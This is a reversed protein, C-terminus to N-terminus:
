DASTQAQTRIAKLTEELDDLRASSLLSKEQLKKWNYFAVPDGQRARIEEEAMRSALRRHEYWANAFEYEAKLLVTNQPTRLLPDVPPYPTPPICPPLPVPSKRTLPSFLSFYAVMCLAAAGGVTSALVIILAEKM